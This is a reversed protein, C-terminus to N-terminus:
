NNSEDLQTKLTKCSKRFEPIFIWQLVFVVGIMIMVVFAMIIAYPYIFSIFFGIASLFSRDSDSVNDNEYKWQVGNYGFRPLIFLLAVVGTWYCSAIGFGFQNMSFISAATTGLVAFMLWFWDFKTIPADNLM